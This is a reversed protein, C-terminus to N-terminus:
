QLLLQALADFAFYLATMFAAAMLTDKAISRVDQTEGINPHDM